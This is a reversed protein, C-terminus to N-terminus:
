LPWECAYHAGDYADCKARIDDPLDEAECTGQAVDYRADVASQECWKYYDNGPHKKVYRAKVSGPSRYTDRIM